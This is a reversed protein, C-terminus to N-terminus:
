LVSVVIVNIQRATPKQATQEVLLIHNIDHQPFDAKHAEETLL